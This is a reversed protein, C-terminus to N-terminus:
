ELMEISDVLSDFLQQEEETAGFYWIHLMSPLQYKKGEKSIVARTCSWVSERWVKANSDIGWVDNGRDINKRFTTGKKMVTLDKEQKSFLSPRQGEYIGLAAKSTPLRFYHVAYGDGQESAPQIEPPFTLEFSAGRFVTNSNDTKKPETTECGWLGILVAFGLM